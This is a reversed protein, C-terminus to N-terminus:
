ATRGYTIFSRRGQEHALHVAQQLVAEAAESLERIDRFPGDRDTLVGIALSMLPYQQIHGQTDPMRLHGQARDHYDYHLGIDEDFQAIVKHAITNIREPSSIIMFYPGVIMQGIFDDPAGHDQIAETLLRATFKLVDEGVVAGYFQTFTEFGNVRVLALTWDVSDLLSRLRDNVVDATPLGTIPHLQSKRRSERLEKKIVAFVEEIDFPKDLFYQVQIEDLARIRDEMEGYATIIIVPIHQTWPNAHLAEAVEYGSIDPLRVDLLILDPAVEQCLALGERGRASTFVNYGRESLFVQFLRAISEDDEVVLITEKAM